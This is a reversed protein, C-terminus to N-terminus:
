VCCRVQVEARIAGDLTHRVVQGRLSVCRLHESSWLAFFVM